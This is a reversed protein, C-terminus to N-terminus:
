GGRSWPTPLFALIEAGIGSDRAAQYVLASVAMDLVGLGFPSFITVGEASARAPAAGSLVDALTCRIFARDGIRQEALHISTQARTVHDIDDVVNDSSLIVEPALDRLSIHLITSGPPCAALDAVYPTGATTAFATLECRSFLATIEPAIELEAEPALELCRRQFYEARATSLDFLTFHQVAPFVTRLFRFIEFSILGCGVFGIRSLPQGAHLQQAGLAASAATRRASILSGELLALPVGTTVDNLIVVASARDLGSTINDPFSAIWKVGAIQFDAGLFTPLAIIRNQPADPFRLFTSHPLGSEGRGHALYARRVAEIIAAEQGALLTQVQDGTLILM